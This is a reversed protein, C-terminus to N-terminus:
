PQLMVSQDSPVTVTYEVNGVTVVYQGPVLDRVEWNTPAAAFRTTALTQGPVLLDTRRFSLAMM